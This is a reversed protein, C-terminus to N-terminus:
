RKQSFARPDGLLASQFTRVDVTEVSSLFVNRSAAVIQPRRGSSTGGWVDTVAVTCLRTKQQFPQDFASEVGHRVLLGLYPRLHWAM